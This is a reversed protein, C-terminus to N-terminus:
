PRPLMAYQFASVMAPLCFRLQYLSAVLEEMRRLFLEQDEQAIPQLWEYSRQQFANNVACERVRQVALLPHPSVPVRLKAVPRRSLAFDALLYSPHQRM